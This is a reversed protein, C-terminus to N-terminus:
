SSGDPPAAAASVVLPTGNSVLVNQKGSTTVGGNSVFSLTIFVLLGGAAVWVAVLLSGSSEDLVELSSSVSAARNLLM